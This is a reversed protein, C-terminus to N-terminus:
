RTRGWRSWGFVALGLGLLAWTGPEPVATVTAEFNSTYPASLKRLVWTAGQLEWFDDRSTGITPADAILLGATGPGSFQVTWTFTNPLPENFDPIFPISIDVGDTGQVVNYNSTFLVTGPAGAAGDNAYLTFSLGGTAAYNSYYGFSFETLVRDTGGLTIEDGYRLTSAFFPLSDPGSYSAEYVVAANASASALVLVGGLLAPQWMSTTKM